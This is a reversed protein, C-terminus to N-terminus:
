LRKQNTPFSSQTCLQFTFYSLLHIDFVTPTKVFSIRVSQPTNWDNQYNFEWLSRHYMLETKFNNSNNVPNDECHVLFDEQTVALPTGGATYCILHQDYEPTLGTQPTCGPGTMAETWLTLCSLPYGLCSWLAGGPCSSPCSKPCSWRCSWHCSWCIGLSGRNVLLCRYFM